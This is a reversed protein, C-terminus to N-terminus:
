PKVHIMELPQAQVISSQPVSQQISASDGLCILFSISAIKIIITLTTDFARKNKNNNNNNNNKILCLHTQKSSTESIKKKITNELHKIKRIPDSTPRCWLTNVGSYRSPRSAAFDAICSFTVRGTEEKKQWNRCSLLIM